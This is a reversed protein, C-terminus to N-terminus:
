TEDNLVGVVADASASAAAVIANAMGAVGAGAVVGNGVTAAAVGVGNANAVNTMTGNSNNININTNSSSTSTSTSTSVGSLHISGIIHPTKKHQQQQQHHHLLTGTSLSISKQQHQQQQQQQQILTPGSPSIPTLPLNHTTQTQQLQQQQQQTFTLTQIPTKTPSTAPTLIGLNVLNPLAIKSATSQQQKSQVKDVIAQLKHQQQAIIDASGVANAAAAAAAAQAAANTALKLIKSATANAALLNTAATATKTATPTALLGSGNIGTTNGSSSSRVLNNNNGSSATASSGISQLQPQQQSSFQHQQQQSQHHQHHHINLGVGNTTAVVNPSGNGLTGNTLQQLVNPTVVSSTSNSGGNNNGASNGNGNYTNGSASGHCSSASSSMNSISSPSLSGLSQSPSSSRQLIIGSANVSTGNSTTTINAVHQASLVSEPSSNHSVLAHNKLGQATKYSKGCHCKYGKRVKGDKKHGNKSHYKIGNVNKYRKKCGPVPCAFPKENGPTGNSGTGSHRSGYRMIFESSFEETTWSDNSDESESVVMEDDDMESGTPTNSRNSSSMSYSHHKIALKRKLEVGSTNASLFPSEKRADESIFRLVYSLPLCAPQAQEKQEVVKPDYDIHTDEIHQILDGLSPFTIGCGNFKCINILFVAM